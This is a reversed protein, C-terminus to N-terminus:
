TFISWDELQKGDILAVLFKHATGTAYFMLEQM